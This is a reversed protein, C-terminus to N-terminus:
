FRFTASLLPGNFGLDVGVAGRTKEVSLYRWGASLTTSPTLAYDVAGLAQWTLRSGVDFGGVDGYASLTLSPTLRLRYRAALIPDTWSLSSRQIVGPLLGPNLSVKNDFNWTRFGAGLDLSQGPTEVARVMGLLTGFTTIARLRGGEYLLDRPTRIDQTVGAHFVDALLVFRGYRLEGAVMVPVTSLGSLVTASSLDFRRDGTQPLPTQVSGTMAPLWVYPTISGELVPPGEARASTAALAALVALAAPRQNRPM